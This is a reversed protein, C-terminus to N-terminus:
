VIQLHTDRPKPLEQDAFNYEQYSYSSATKEEKGSEAQLHSREM